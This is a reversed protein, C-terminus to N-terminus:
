RRPEVPKSRGDRIPVVVGRRATAAPKPVIQGGTGKQVIKQLLWRQEASGFRDTRALCDNCLPGHFPKATSNGRSDIGRLGVRIKVDPKDRRCCDCVAM